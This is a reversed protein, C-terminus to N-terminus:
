LPYQDFNNKLRICHASTYKTKVISENEELDIKNGKLELYAKSNRIRHGIWKNRDMNKNESQVPNIPDTRHKLNIM